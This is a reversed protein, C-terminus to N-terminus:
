SGGCTVGDCDDKCCVVGADACSTGDPVCANTGCFGDTCPLNDVCPAGGTTCTEGEALKGGCAGNDDCNGSCCISGDQDCHSYTLKCGLGPSMTDADSADVAASGADADGNGIPPAAGADAGVQADSPIVHPGGAESSVLSGADPEPGLGASKGGADDAGAAAEFCGHTLAGLVAGTGLLASAAIISRVQVISVFSM